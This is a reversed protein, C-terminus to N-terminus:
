AADSSEGDAEADHRAPPFVGLHGEIRALRERADALSATIGRFQERSELRLGEILERTEIRLGEILERNELRVEGILELTEIHTQQNEKRVEEILDRNQRGERHQVRMSVFMLTTMTAFMVGFASGLVVLVTNATAPDM